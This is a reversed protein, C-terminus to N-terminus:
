GFCPTPCPDSGCCPACVGRPSGFECPSLRIGLPTNRDLKDEGPQMFEKPLYKIIDDDHADILSLVVGPDSPDENGWLATIEDPVPRPFRGIEWWCYPFQFVTEGKADRVSDYRFGNDTQQLVLYAGGPYQAHITAAVLTILARAEAKLKDQADYLADLPTLDATTM